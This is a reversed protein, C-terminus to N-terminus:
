KYVVKGDEYIPFKLQGAKWQRLVMQAVFGEEGSTYRCKKLVQESKRTEYPLLISAARIRVSVHEHDLLPTFMETWNPYQKINCICKDAARFHRNATNYDSNVKADYNALTLKVFEEVLTQISSM